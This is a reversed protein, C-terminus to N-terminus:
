LPQWHGNLKRTFWLENWVSDQKIDPVSHRNTTKTTNRVYIRVLILFRSSLTRFPLRQPYGRHKRSTNKPFFMSNNLVNSM